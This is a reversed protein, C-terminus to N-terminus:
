SLAPLALGLVGIVACLLWGALIRRRTPLHDSPNYPM